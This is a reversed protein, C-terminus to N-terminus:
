FANLNQVTVFLFAKFSCLLLCSMGASVGKCSYVFGKRSVRQVTTIPFPNIHGTRYLRCLGSTIKSVAETNKAHKGRKM